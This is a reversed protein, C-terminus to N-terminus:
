LLNFPVSPNNKLGETGKKTGKEDKKMHARMKEEACNKTFNKEIWM